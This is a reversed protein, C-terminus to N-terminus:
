PSSRSRARLSPRGASRSFSTSLGSPASSQLNKPALTPRYTLFLPTFYCDLVHWPPLTRGPADGLGPCARNRRRSFRPLVLPHSLLRKPFAGRAARLIIDNKLPPFDKTFPEEPNWDPSEVM